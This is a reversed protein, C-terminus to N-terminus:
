FKGSHFIHSPKSVHFNHHFHNLYNCPNSTLYFASASKSSIERQTVKLCKIEDNALNTQDNIEEFDIDAYPDPKAMICSNYRFFFTTNILFYNNVIATCRTYNICAAAIIILM